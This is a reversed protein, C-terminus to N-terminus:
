ADQRSLSAALREREAANPIRHLMKNRIVDKADAWFAALEPDRMSHRSMSNVAVVTRGFLDGLHVFNGTEFLLEARLREPDTRMARAIEAIQAFIRKHEIMDRDFVPEFTVPEGSDLAQMFDKAAKDFPALGEPIPIFRMM